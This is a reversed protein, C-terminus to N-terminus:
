RQYKKVRKCRKKEFNRKLIKKKFTKSKSNLFHYTLSKVQKVVLYNLNAQYLASEQNKTTNKEGVEDEM